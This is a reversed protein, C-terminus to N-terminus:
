RGGRGGRDGRGGKNYQSEGQSANHKNINCSQNNNNMIYKGALNTILETKEKNGVGVLRSLNTLVNCVQISNNNRNPYRKDIRDIFATFLAINSSTLKSLEPNNNNPNPLMLDYIIEDMNSPSLTTTDQFLQKNHELDNKIGDYLLKGNPSVQFDDDAKTDIDLNWKFKSYIKGAEKNTVSELKPEIAKLELLVNSLKGINLALKKLDGKDDIIEALLKKIENTSSLITNYQEPFKEKNIALLINKIQPDDIKVIIKPPKNTEPEKYRINSQTSTNSKSQMQQLDNLETDINFEPDTDIHENFTKGDQSRQNLISTFKNNSINSSIFTTFYDIDNKNDPFGINSQFEQVAIIKSTDDFIEKLTANISLLNINIISDWNINEFKKKYLPKNNEFNFTAPDQIMNILLKYNKILDVLYSYDNNNKDIIDKNKYYYFLLTLEYLINLKNIYERKGISHPLSLLDNILTNMYNKIGTCCVRTYVYRDNFYEDPLESICQTQTGAAPAPAPAAAAAGPVAAAAAARRAGRAAGGIHTGRFGGRINKMVGGLQKAQEENQKATEIVSKFGTYYKNLKSIILNVSREVIFYDYTIKSAPVQEKYKEYLEKVHLGIQQLREIMTKNDKIYDNISNLNRTKQQEDFVSSSSHLIKQASTDIQKLKEISAKTSDIVLEMVKYIIDYNEKWKDLNESYKGSKDLDLIEFLNNYYKADVLLKNVEDILENQKDLFNNDLKIVENYEKEYEKFKKVERSYKKGINKKGAAETYTIKLAKIEEQYKAQDKYKSLLATFSDSNKIFQKNLKNFYPSEKKLIKKNQLLRNDIEKAKIESKKISSAINQEDKENEIGDNQINQLITAKKVNTMYDTTQVAQKDALIKFKNLQIKYIEISDKMKNSSENFKKILRKFKYLKIFNMIGGFGGKQTIKYTGNKTDTYKITHKITHKKTKFNKKYAKKIPIYSYKSTGKNKKTKSM